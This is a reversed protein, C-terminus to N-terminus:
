LTQRKGLEKEIFSKIVSRNQETVPFEFGSYRCKQFHANKIKVDYGSCNPGCTGNILSMCNAAKDITEVMEDPLTELFDLYTNANEGFIRIRMSDDTLFITIAERRSKPHRYAGIFESKKLEFSVKCGNNILYNHLDQIYDVYNVDVKELFQEFSIKTEMECNGGNNSIQGEMLCYYQNKCSLPQKM